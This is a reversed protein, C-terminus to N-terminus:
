MNERATAKGGSKAALAYTGCVAELNTPKSLKDTDVLASLAGALCEGTHEVSLRPMHRESVFEHAYSVVLAFLDVIPKVNM